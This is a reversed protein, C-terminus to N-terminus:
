GFFGVANLSVTVFSVIVLGTVTAVLTKKFERTDVWALIGIIFTFLVGFFLSAALGITFTVISLMIQLAEKPFGEFLIFISGIVM